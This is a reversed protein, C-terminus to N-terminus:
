KSYKILKLFNWCWKKTRDMKTELTFFNCCGFLDSLQLKKFHCNVFFGLLWFFRITEIKWTFIQFFIRCGFLNCVQSKWFCSIKRPIKQVPVARNVKTAWQSEWVHVNKYRAGGRIRVFDSVSVFSIIQWRTSILLFYVGHLTYYLNNLAKKVIIWNDVSVMFILIKKQM